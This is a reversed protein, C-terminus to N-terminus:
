LFLNWATETIGLDNLAMAVSQYSKSGMAKIAKIEKVELAVIDGVTRYGNRFLFNKARVCIDLEIVSMEMLNKIEKMEQSKIDAMAKDYGNKYGIDYGKQFEAEAKKYMVGNLGNRIYCHKSPHRLKRLARMEIERIASGSVGEMEGIAKLTLREGYRYRIIKQERPELLGVAYIVGNLIDDPYIASETDDDGNIRILLNLPYENKQIKEVKQM